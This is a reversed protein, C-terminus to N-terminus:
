LEIPLPRRFAIGTLDISVDYCIVEVRNRVATRLQRAYAPDIHAAPRFRQADMRQVCFFVAARHGLSVLRELETLHKLGRETVADPFHAIGAEVLTCNKIEIFFRESIRRELVLDLRSHPSVKVESSVREYGQFEPISATAAAQKALRNPVLTNIGVLSSPMEIMQWTYRLRRKPHADDSLYVPMGPESCGLMSGSNPCHATVITGDELRVDALFRKYRRLLMGRILPPWQLGPLDSVPTRPNSMFFRDPTIDDQNTNERSARV